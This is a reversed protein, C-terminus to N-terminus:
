RCYGTVDFIIEVTSGAPAGYVAALTGDPGLALSVGNARTDGAPFNLTSTTANSTPTPTLAVYGERSANTITLNGTVAVADAPVGGRGAVVFTRPVNASFAGALGNGARTDLLRAPPLAFYSAGSTDAPPPTTDALFKDALAQYLEPRSNDYGLAWIGAGRLNSRNVLDYRLGLSAADDVYLQRWTTVCGYTATCVQKHYATWPAGEVSDWRRGYAQLYDIATTYFVATSYGYQEGSINPAHLADTPTSWARGYYPVGLIVKSPDIRATYAAVTDTLDYVPGALPSVSGVPNSNSGRYDYGMIFVADAGGPATAAEIPYNGIWGTTDFTLQYGPAAGDLGARLERVLATFEDTYGSVIPEFDLNVGDAGRDRVAAVIQGVLQARAGPNGLLAAQTEAQYSSWAFCGVTLVVRTGNAHAANIVSTMKSSTWGAWGTSISGDPDTKTLVGWRDTGVSFYAITSLLGYDLTTSADSLEWYPLFGFVERRLGAAAESSPGGEMGPAAIAYRGDVVDLPDVRGMDIDAGGTPGGAPHDVPAPPATLARLDAGSLRGAPLERPAAGGVPWGDNSRPKFPTTVREGPEFDIRDAAHAMAEEYQISASIGPAPDAPAEPPPAEPARAAIAPVLPGSSVAMMGLVVLLRRLRLSSRTM